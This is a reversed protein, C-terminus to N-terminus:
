EEEAVVIYRRNRSREGDPLKVVRVKRGNQSLYEAAGNAMARQGSAYLEEPAPGTAHRARFEKLAAPYDWDDWVPKFSDEKIGHLVEWEIMERVSRRGLRDKMESIVRDVGGDKSLQKRHSDYYLMTRNAHNMTSEAKM